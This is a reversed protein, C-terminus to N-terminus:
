FPIDDDFTSQPAQQQYQQPAQQYQQQQSQQYQGQQQNSQKSDLFEVKNVIIGTKYKKTGTEDEWCDTKLKGECYLKSGKKVYQGIVEATRGFATMNHWETQEKKEGTNKDKWTESTAISFSAIATGSPTYRMEPDKGLNGIIIVKNIGAM